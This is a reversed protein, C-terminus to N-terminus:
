EEDRVFYLRCGDGGGGTALLYIRDGLRLLRDQRNLRLRIGLSRPASRKGRKGIRMAWLSDGDRSSKEWLVLAGGDGTRIAQPSHASENEKYQTLWIVGTVRQKSWRGAFNFFGAEETQNGKPLGAMLSDSIVSGRGGKQFRKVVRLMALNRPDGCNRFARSNDLVKGDLSQDTSFLVTYCKRDELVAGLETYTNNDNSWKYFTRGGRSIEEYVPSGNRARTGHATKYTFIVASSKNTATFKHLHIGRPYNDGLDVGIFEGKNNVALINGKSHSSTTGLRRLVELTKASFSVAIAAQHTLGDRSRYMTRPLILGLVGKSFCMNAHGRRGFSWVNFASRANDIKSSLLPKGAADAKFLTALLPVEERRNRPTEQYVLYYVNGRPDTTGAALIGRREGDVEATLGHIEQRGSAPDVWTIYIERSRQDQWLVGPWGRKDHSVLIKRDGGQPRAAVQASSSAQLDICRLDTSSESDDAERSATCCWATRAFIPSLEGAPGSGTRDEVSATPVRERLPYHAVLKAPEDEDDTLSALITAGARAVDFIRVDALFGEFVPPKKNKGASGPGLMLPLRTAGLGGFEVLEKEGVSKGDLYIGLKAGDWTGALHHWKGDRWLARGAVIETRGEQNCIGFVLRNTSTLSLHFSGRDATAKADEWRSVLHIPKRVAASTKIWCEVSLQNLEVPLGPNGVRVSGGPSGFYLSYQAPALGALVLVVLACAVASAAPTATVLPKM